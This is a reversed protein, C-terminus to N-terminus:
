RIGLARCGITLAIIAPLTFFFGWTAFMVGSSKLDGFGLVLSVAGLCIAWIASAIILTRWTGGILTAFWYLALSLGIVIAALIVYNKM